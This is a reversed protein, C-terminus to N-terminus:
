DEIIQIGAVPIFLQDDTTYTDQYEPALTGWHLRVGAANFIAWGVVTGISATLVPFEIAVANTKVGASAAPFITSNNAVLARAYSGGSCETGTASDTPASTYLAVSLVDYAPPRSWGAPVTGYFLDLTLDELVDTKSGTPM